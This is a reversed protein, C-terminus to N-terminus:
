SPWSGAEIRPTLAFFARAMSWRGSAGDLMFQDSSADLSALDRRPHCSTVSSSVCSLMSAQRFSEFGLSYGGIVLLRPTGITEWKKRRLPERVRVIEEVFLDLGLIRGTMRVHSGVAQGRSEDFPTQMNSGMMMM